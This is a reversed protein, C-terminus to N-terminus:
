IKLGKKTEAVRWSTESNMLKAMKFLLKQYPIISLPVLSPSWLGLCLYPPMVTLVLTRIHGQGLAAVPKSRKEM